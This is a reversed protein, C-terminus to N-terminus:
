GRSPEKAAADILDLIDEPLSEYLWASGYRYGCESCPGSLKDGTAGTYDNKWTPRQTPDARYRAEQHECGAKMDNLHWREWLAVLASPASGHAQGGEIWDRAGKEYVEGQLSLRQKGNEEELHVMVFTRNGDTDLYPGYKRYAITQSTM